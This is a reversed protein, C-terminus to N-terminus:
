SKGAVSLVAASEIERRATSFLGIFPNAYTEAQRRINRPKMNYDLTNTEKQKRGVNHGAYFIGYQDAQWGGHPKFIGGWMVYCIILNIKCYFCLM